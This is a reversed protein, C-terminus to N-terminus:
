LYHPFYSQRNTLSNSPSQRVISSVAPATTDISIGVTSSTNFLTILANNGAADQITGGNALIVNGIGDFSGDGTEVTYRFVLASTGSGSVYALQRNMGGIVVTICPTGVSTNVIVAENYNVTFDLNQGVNYTGNAPM